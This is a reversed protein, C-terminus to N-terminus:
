SNGGILEDISADDFMWVEDGDSGHSRDADRDQWKRGDETHGMCGHEVPDFNDCGNVPIYKHGKAVEALLYEHAEDPSMGRGGDASFVGVYDKPFRSNRMFGAINVRLHTTKKM